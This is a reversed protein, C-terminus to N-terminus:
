LTIIFDSRVMDSMRKRERACCEVYQESSSIRSQYLVVCYMVAKLIVLIPQEEIRQMGVLVLFLSRKEPLFFPIQIVMQFVLDAFVFPKLVYRIFNPLVWSRRGMSSFLDFQMFIVCFTVYTICILGGSFMGLILLIFLSSIHFYIFFVNKMFVYVRRIFTSRRQPRSETLETKPVDSIQKMTTLSYYSSCFHQFYIMQLFISILDTVFGWMYAKPHDFLCYYAWAQSDKSSGFLVKYLPWQGSGLGLVKRLTSDDVFQPVSDHNMNCVALVYELIFMFWTYISLGVTAKLNTGFFLCFLGVPIFCLETATNKLIASFCISFIVVHEFLTKCITMITIKYKAPNLPASLLLSSPNKISTLDRIATGMSNAQSPANPATADGVHLNKIEPLVRPTSEVETRTQGPDKKEVVYMFNYGLRDKNWDTLRIELACLALVFLYGFIDWVFSNKRGIDRHYVGFYTATAELVRTFYIGKFRWDAPFFMDVLVGLHDIFRSLQSLSMLLACFLVLFRLTAKRQATAYSNREELQEDSIQQKEDYSFSGHPKRTRALAYRLHLTCYHIGFFLLLLWTGGSFNWFLALFAVILFLVHFSYM